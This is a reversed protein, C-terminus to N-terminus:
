LGAAHIGPYPRHRRCDGLAKSSRPPSPCSRPDKELHKPYGASYRTCSRCTFGQPFAAAPIAAWKGGAQALNLPGSAFTDAGLGKIVATAAKPDLIGQEAWTIVYDLPVFIMDPLANAAAAAVVRTPLESEEIPVIELQIGTSAKFRNALDKQIAMRKPEIETTWFSLGAAQADVRFSAGFLLAFCLVSTFMFSIHRRM